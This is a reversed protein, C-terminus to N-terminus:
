PVTTPLPQSAPQPGTATTREGRARMRRYGCFIVWEFVSQIVILIVFTLLAAPTGRPDAYVM